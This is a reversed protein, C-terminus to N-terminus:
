GAAFIINKELEYTVKPHFRELEYALKPYFRELEYALKPRFRELEYAVPHKSPSFTTFFTVTADVQQPTM